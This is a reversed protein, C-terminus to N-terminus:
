TATAAVELRRLTEDISRRARAVSGMAKIFFKSRASNYDVWERVLTGGDSPTFEYGWVHGGVHKWAIRKGEEFEVVTNTIRYPVGLKMSMGFKSGLSLRAPASAVPDRVTGSGDILQHKNPDAVFEFLTEPSAVILREGAILLGTDTM